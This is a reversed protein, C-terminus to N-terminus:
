VKAVGNFLDREKSGNQPPPYARMFTERSGGMRLVWGMLGQAMGAGGQSAHCLSAETKRELVPKFDIVAHVPFDEVTLEALDIDGNRGWKHPNKGFLPMLRVAYRLFRRSITH